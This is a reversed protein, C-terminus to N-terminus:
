ATRRRGTGAPRRNRSAQRHRRRDPRGLHVPRRDSGVQRRRGIVTTFRPHEAGVVYELARQDKNDIVGDANDDALREHAGVVFDKTDWGYLGVMVTPTIAACKSTPRDPAQQVSFAINLKSGDFAASDVTVTIADSYRLGDTTFIMENYGSHIEIFGPADDGVEHCGNCEEDPNTLDVREHDEIGALLTTLALETTGAEESGTVPHCSKCTALTFNDDSLTTDLKGAHCTVCNAMSQPYPFEMAHSMHVDNM